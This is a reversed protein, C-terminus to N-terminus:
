IDAPRVVADAAIAEPNIGVLDWEVYDPRLVGHRVFPDEATIARAEELGGCHLLYAVYADGVPKAFAGGLLVLNRRILSSIFERHAAAHAAEAEAQEGERLIVLVYPV